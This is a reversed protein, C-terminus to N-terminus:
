SRAASELGAQDAVIVKARGLVVCGERQLAQLELNVTQRSLGVAAALEAQPLRQNILTGEPVPLAHNAVLRLLHRAVRSRATLFLGDELRAENTRIRRCLVRIVDQALDPNQRVLAIFQKRPIRLLTVKTIALASATRTTGDLLAIEGFSQGRRLTNLILDQGDPGSSRIQVQGRRIVYLADPEDGQFFLTSGAPQSVSVTLQAIRDLEPPALMGLIDCGRLLQRIADRKM